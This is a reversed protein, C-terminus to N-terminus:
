RTLQSLMEQLAPLPSQDLGPDIRQTPLKVIAPLVLQFTHVHMRFPGFVQVSSAKLLSYWVLSTNSIHPFVGRVGPCGACAPLDPESCSLKIFLDSM